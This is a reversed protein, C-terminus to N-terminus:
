PQRAVPIRRNLVAILTMGCVLVLSGLYKLPRGPDTAATFVSSHYLGPIPRGFDDRQPQFSSQYLTVGNCTVPENMVVRRTEPEAGERLLQIDSEYGAVKEGGPDRTERFRELKVSFGHRQKLDYVESGYRLLMESGDDLVLREFGASRGDRLLWVRGRAAGKVVEVEVWRPTVEADRGAVLIPRPQKRAQPLFRVQASGQMAGLPLTWSGEAGAAIRLGPLRGRSRSVATCVLTGDPSLVAYANLRQGSDGSRLLPHEYLFEAGPEEPLVALSAPHCAFVPVMRWRRQDETGEGVRLILLPDLPSEADESLSSGDFRPRELRRDVIISLEASVTITQPLDAAIAERHVGGAHHVALTPVEPLNDGDALLADALSAFRTRGLSLQVPGIDHNTEGDAALWVRPLVQEAQGPPRLRLDVGVAAPDGPLGPGYAMTLDGWLVCGTISVRPFGDTVKAGHRIGDWVSDTLLRRLPEGRVLPPAERDQFPRALYALFSPLGAFTVADFAVTASRAGSGNGDVITLQDREGAIQHAAEGTPVELLGDLRGRSQWFGAILLLLGAHVVVFGLQRRKWPFRVAAAGFINLAILGWLASFWWAHYIKVAAAHRGFDREYYTAVGIVVTIAIILMVAMRLSSFPALLRIPWAKGRAHQRSPQFQPVDAPSDM